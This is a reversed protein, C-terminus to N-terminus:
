WGIRAVPWGSWACRSGALGQWRGALSWACKSGALGQWQGALGPVSVVLWDKGSALWLGSM